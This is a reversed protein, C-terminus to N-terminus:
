PELTIAAEFKREERPVNENGIGECDVNVIYAEITVTDQIECTIMNVSALFAKAAQEEVAKFNPIGGAFLDTEQLVAKESSWCLTLNEDTPVANGTRYALTYTHTVQDEIIYIQNWDTDTGMRVPNTFLRDEAQKVTGNESTLTITTIKEVSNEGIKTVVDEKATYVTARVTATTYTNGDADKGSWVVHESAKTYATHWKNQETDQKQLHTDATQKQPIVTGGDTEWFIYLNSIDGELPVSLSGDEHLTVKVEKISNDFWDNAYELVLFYAVIAVTAIILVIGGSLMFKRVNQKM